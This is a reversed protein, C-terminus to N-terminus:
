LRLTLPGRREVALEIEHDEVPQGSSFIQRIIEQLAIPLGTISQDQLAGASFGLIQEAEGAVASVKKRADILIVGCALCDRLGNAFSLGESGQQPSGVPSQHM